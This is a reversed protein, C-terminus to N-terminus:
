DGSRNMYLTTVVAGITPFLAAINSITMATDYSIIQMLVERQFDVFMPFWAIGFLCLDMGIFTLFIQRAKAQHRHERTWRWMMWTPLLNSGAIAGMTVGLAIAGMGDMPLMMGLVVGLPYGIIAGLITGVFALAGRKIASWIQHQYGQTLQSTM